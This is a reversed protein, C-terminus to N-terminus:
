IIDLADDFDDGDWLTYGDLYGSTGVTGVEIGGITVPAPEGGGGARRAPSFGTFGQPGTFGRM